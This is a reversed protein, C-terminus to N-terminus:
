RSCAQTAALKTASPGIAALARLLALAIPDGVKTLARSSHRQLGGTTGQAVLRDM